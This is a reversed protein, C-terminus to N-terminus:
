KKNEDLKRKWVPKQEKGTMLQHLGAQAEDIAIVTKRFDAIEISELRLKLKGRASGVPMEVKGSEPNLAMVNHLFKNRQQQAAKLKAVVDQYNILRPYDSVVQECLASFMDLKQPFSSHNIMIFPKPDNIDFGALKGIFIHLFSELSSWLVSIRGVEKLYDDPLPWDSWDLKNLEGPTM